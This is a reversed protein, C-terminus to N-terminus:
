LALGDVDSLSVLLEQSHNPTVSDGVGAFNPQTEDRTASVSAPVAAGTLLTVAARLFGRRAPLM